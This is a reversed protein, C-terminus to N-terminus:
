HSKQIEKEKGHSNKFKEKWLISFINSELNLLSINKGFSYIIYKDNKILISIADLSAPIANHAYNCRLEYLFSGFSDYNNEKYHQICDKFQPFISNDELHFSLDFNSDCRNSDPIRTIDDKTWKYCYIHVNGEIYTDRLYDQLYNEDICEKIFKIFADRGSKKYFTKVILEILLLFHSFAYYNVRISGATISIFEEQTIIKHHIYNDIAASLIGYKELNYNLNDLQDKTYNQLFNEKFYNIVKTKTNGM